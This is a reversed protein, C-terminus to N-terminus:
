HKEVECSGQPSRDQVFRYQISNCHERPAVIQLTVLVTDVAVVAVLAADASERVLRRARQAVVLDEVGLHARM